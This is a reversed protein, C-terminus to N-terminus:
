RRAVAERGSVVTDDSFTPSSQPVATMISSVRERVIGAKPAEDFSGPIHKEVAHLSDSGGIRDHDFNGRLSERPSPSASYASQFDTDSDDTTGTLAPTLAPTVPTMTRPRDLSAASSSETDDNNKSSGRGTAIAIATTIPPLPSPPLGARPHGRKESPTEARTPTRPEKLKSPKEGQATDTSDGGGRSNSTRNSTVTDGRKRVAKVNRSAVGSVNRSRPRTIAGRGETSEGESEPGSPSKWHRERDSALANELKQQIQLVKAAIRDSRESIGEDVATMGDQQGDVGSASFRNKKTPSQPAEDEEEIVEEKALEHKGQAEERM